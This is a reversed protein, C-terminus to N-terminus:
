GFQNLLIRNDEGLREELQKVADLSLILNHRLLISYVNVNESYFVDVKDLDAAAEFLRENPSGDVLVASQWGRQDLIPMLDQDDEIDDFSEVIHLDGQALRVSLAVRLGMRRVKKPLTYEYSRPKPGHVVGGGRFHPARISGQRAKNLGKQPWPKRGGGRVESRDKVCATGARRKARQWVVVRHLIDIRPNEGFVFDNLEIMGLSKDDKFSTVWAHISSGKNEFSREAIFNCVSPSFVGYCPLEEVSPAAPRPAPVLAVPRHVWRTLSSRYPGLTGGSLVANSSASLSRGSRLIRGLVNM